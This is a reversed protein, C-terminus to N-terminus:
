SFFGSNITTIGKLLISSGDNLRILTDQGGNIHQAHALAYSVSDGGTLQIRDGSGQDFGVITDHYVNAGDVLSNSSGQLGIESDDVAAGAGLDVTNNNGDVGLTERGTLGSVTDGNGVVGVLDGRSRQVSDDSASVGVTDNNPLTITNGGASTDIIGISGKIVQLEHGGDSLVALGQYGSAPNNPASGLGTWVELNFTGPTTAAPHISSTEVVNTTPLVSAVEFQSGPISTAM